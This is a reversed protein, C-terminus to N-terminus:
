KIIFEVKTGDAYQDLQNSVWSGAGRNDSPAIYKIDTGVGTAPWTVWVIIVIAAVAALTGIIQWTTVENM